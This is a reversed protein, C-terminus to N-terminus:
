QRYARIDPTAGTKANSSGVFGHARCSPPWRGYAASTERRPGYCGGELTCITCFNGLFNPPEFERRGNSRQSVARKPVPRANRSMGRHSPGWPTV